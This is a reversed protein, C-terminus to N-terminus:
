SQEKQQDSVTVPRIAFPMTEHIDPWWPIIGRVEVSWVIKNNEAEFSHIMDPPLDISISGFRMESETKANALPLRQFIKRETTTTTGRVYTVVEEGIISLQLERIRRVLGTSEWALDLTEGPQPAGYSVAIAVIPNFLKLFANICAFILVLGVVVFLSIFVMGITDGDRWIHYCGTWTIGNWFVTIFLIGLFISMRGYSSKLRLPGHLNQWPTESNTSSQKRSIM